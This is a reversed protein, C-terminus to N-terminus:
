IIVRMNFRRVDSMRLRVPRDFRALVEDNSGLIVVLVNGDELSNLFRTLGNTSSDASVAVIRTYFKQDRDFVLHARNMRGERIFKGVSITLYKLMSSGSTQIPANYALREYASYLKMMEKNANFETVGKDNAYQTVKDMAKKRDLYPVYRIRGFLDRVMSVPKAGLADKLLNKLYRKFVPLVKYFNHVIMAAEDLPVGVNQSVTYETGGYIMALGTPKAVKNRKKQYSDNDDKDNSLFKKRVEDGFIAFANIAHWDGVPPFHKKEEAAARFGDVLRDFDVQPM